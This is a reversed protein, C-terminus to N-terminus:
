YPKRSVDKFCGGFLLSNTKNIIRAIRIQVQLNPLTKKYQEYNIHFFGKEGGIFINNDNVPYIFEFGSLLKNNFEPLPIIAPEKSSIDVVGLKKEHIFWINGSM